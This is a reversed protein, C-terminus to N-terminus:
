KTYAFFLNHWCTKDMNDFNGDNAEVEKGKYEQIQISSSYLNQMYNCIIMDM